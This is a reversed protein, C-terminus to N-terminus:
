EKRKRQRKGYPVTAEAATMTGPSARVGKHTGGSEDSKKKGSLEESMRLMRDLTEDFLDLPNEEGNYVQRLQTMKANLRALLALDEKSLPLSERLLLQNPEIGLALAAMTVDRVKPQNKANVWTSWTTKPVPPPRDGLARLLEAAIEELEAIRKPM